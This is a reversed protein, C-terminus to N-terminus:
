DRVWVKAHFMHNIISFWLIQSCMITTAARLKSTISLIHITTSDMLECWAQQILPLVVEPELGAKGAVLSVDELFKPDPYLFVMPFGYPFGYPIRYPWSFSLKPFSDFSSPFTILKLNKMQSILAKSRAVEPM